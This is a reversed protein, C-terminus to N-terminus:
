AESQRDKRIIMVIGVILGLLFASFVKAEIYKERLDEIDLDSYLSKPSTESM